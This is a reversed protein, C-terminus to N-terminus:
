AVEVKLFESSSSSSRQNENLPKQLQDEKQGKLLGKFNNDVDEIGFSERM